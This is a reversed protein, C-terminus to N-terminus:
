FISELKELIKPWSFKKVSDQASKKIQSLEKNSLSIAKNIKKALDKEDGINFLFGNKEHEILEVAGKNDSAIVIKGRAMAEILVQPMGESKSPLVFIQASDLKEIEDKLDYIKDTLTIRYKSNSSEIIRKLNEQYNKEIPGFIELSIKQNTIHSMSRILTEINKIKSIRGIYLIKSKEKIKTSKFFAERIGNPIYAIKEIPVGLKKLYPMEWNTIAIVKDFKNLTRPGIISDYLNVILKAHSTRTNSRGFPAHTVLHAKCGLKKKLKLAKTTHPIRYSHAIIVDPKFKMAEEEFNWFLFGEGGLRVAPFRKVKVNGLKSEPPAVKDSGKTHNSTLVLVEHGNQALMESEHKVRAWVGCGGASYNTLELIKM